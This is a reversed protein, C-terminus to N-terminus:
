GFFRLDKEKRVKDLVVELSPLGEPKTQSAPNNQLELLFDSDDEETVKKGEPNVPSWQDKFKLFLFFISKGQARSEGDDTATVPLPTAVNLGPKDTLFMIQKSTKIRWQM